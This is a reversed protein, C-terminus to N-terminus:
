FYRDLVCLRFSKLSLNTYSILRSSDDSLLTTTVSTVLCTKITSGTPASSASACRPPTWRAGVSTSRAEIARATTVGSAGNSMNECHRRVASPIRAVPPVLVRLDFIVGNILLTTLLSFLVLRCIIIRMGIMVIIVLKTLYFIKYESFSLYRFKFIVM